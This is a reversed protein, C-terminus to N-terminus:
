RGELAVQTDAFNCLLEFVLYEITSLVMGDLSYTAVRNAPGGRM